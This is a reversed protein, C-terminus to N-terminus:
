GYAASNTQVSGCGTAILLERCGAGVVFERDPRATRVGTRAWRRRTLRALGVRRVPDRPLAGEAGNGGRRKAIGAGSRGLRWKRTAANAVTNSVRTAILFARCRQHWCRGRWRL